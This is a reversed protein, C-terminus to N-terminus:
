GLVWVWDWKREKELKEKRAFNYSRTDNYDM